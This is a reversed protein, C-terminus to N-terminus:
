TTGYGWRERRVARGLREQRDYRCPLCAPRGWGSPEPPSVPLRKNRDPRSRFCCALLGLETVEDRVSRASVV